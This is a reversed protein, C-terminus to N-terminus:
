WNDNDDHEAQETTVLDDPSLHGAALARGTKKSSSGDPATGTGTISGKAAGAVDAFPGGGRLGVDSRDAGGVPKYAAISLRTLEDAGVAGVGLGKESGNLSARIGQSL